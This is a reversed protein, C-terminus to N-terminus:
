PNDQELKMSEKHFNRRPSIGSEPLRKKFGNRGTGNKMICSFNKEPFMGAKKSVEKTVMMLPMGTGCWPGVPFMINAREPKKGM